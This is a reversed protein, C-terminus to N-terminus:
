WRRNWRFFADTEMGFFLFARYRIARTDRCTPYNSCGWFEQGVNTGRRAKRKVMTRNCSPCHPSDVSAVDFSSQNQNSKNQKPNRWSRVARTLAREFWELLERLVLGAVGALLVVPLAKWFLAHIFSDLQGPHMCGFAALDTGSKQRTWDGQM